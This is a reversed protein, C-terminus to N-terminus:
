TLKSLLVTKAPALLQGPVCAGAALGPGASLTDDAQEVPRSTVAASGETGVTRLLLTVFSLSLETHGGTLCGVVRLDCFILM